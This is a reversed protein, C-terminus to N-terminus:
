SISYENRSSNILYAAISIDYYVGGLRVTKSLAVIADKASFCIKKAKDDELVPYFKKILDADDILYGVGGLAVAVANLGGDTTDFSYSAYESKYIKGILKDLEGEDAVTRRECGKIPDEAKLEEKVSESFDLRKIISNLGLKTLMEFLESGADIGGMASDFDIEMPVFKDITALKKSLFASEKGERLKRELAGKFGHSDFDAYINEISKHEAILQTATKEGIGSVGPINDSSDGMLAKVDIFQEPTVGYRAFVEDPGYKETETTGSRTTTLLINTYGDALQLDDKDGTAILCSIEKEACLRSVTGIIDDAEYGEKELRLIGMSDIVKRAIPMQVVLEEPMPHRQAKYADFMKHRFTPAKLDFAAMIYDPNHDDILKLLMMLFGYVANTPTGDASSLFRVGYFARNILSNSDIILLKKM